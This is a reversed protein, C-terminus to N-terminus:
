YGMAKLIKIETFIIQGETEILNIKESLIKIKIDNIKVLNSLDSLFKENEIKLIKRYQSIKNLIEARKLKLNELKNLNDEVEKVAELIKNRLEIKSEELNIESIKILNKRKGYDFLTQIFSVTLNYLSSSNKILKSLKASEYGYNWTFSFSPLLAKKSIALNIKNVFIKEMLINIDPRNLVIKAPTQMPIKILRFKWSPSININSKSNNLLVKLSSKLIKINSSIIPIIEKISTIRIEINRLVDNSTLGNQFKSILIDKSNNLIKLIKRQLNLIKLNKKIEFYILCVTSILSKKELQLFYREVLKEHKKSITKLYNKQWLDLEYRLDINLNFQDEKIKKPIFKPLGHLYKKYRIRSGQLYINPFLESKAVKYYYRAKKINLYALKLDLNNKIAQEILFNLKNDNFKEWWNEYNYNQFSFNKKKLIKDNTGCSFALFILLFILIKNM